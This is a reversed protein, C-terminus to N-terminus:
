SLVPSVIETKSPKRFKSPLWRGASLRRLLWEAPGYNFYHLWVISFIIQVMIIEAVFFYLQFQTLRGYYGMGYGYFFITCVITQILYNTLAMKGTAAFGNWIRGFSKVSLLTMVVSAYGFALAGREIPFFLNFPLFHSALYKTYDNLSIQQQHLRYWGLLLGLSIGALGFLLYKNQSFRSNFFGIKYLFMGLLIMSALDWIGIKYLWDAQRSQVQQSLNNWIKGYSLSRM